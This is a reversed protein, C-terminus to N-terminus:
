AFFFGRDVLRILYVFALAYARAKKYGNDLMM